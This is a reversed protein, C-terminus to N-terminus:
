RKEHNGFNMCMNKEREMHQMENWSLGRSVSIFITTIEKSTILPDNIFTLEDLLQLTALTAVGDKNM